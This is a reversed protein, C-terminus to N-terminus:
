RSPTPMLKYSSSKIHSNQTTPCPNDSSPRRTIDQSKAIQTPRQILETYPIKTVGFTRLSPRERGEKRGVGVRLGGGVRILDYEDGWLGLGGIGVFGWLRYPGVEEFILVGVRCRAGFVLGNTM